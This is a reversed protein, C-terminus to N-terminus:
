QTPPDYELEVPVQQQIGFSKITNAIVLIPEKRYGQVDTRVKVKDEKIFIAEDYAKPLKWKTLTIYFPRLWATSLLWHVLDEQLTM